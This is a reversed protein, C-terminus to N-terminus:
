AHVCVCVGEVQSKIEATQSVPNEACFPPVFVCFFGLQGQLTSNNQLDLNQLM